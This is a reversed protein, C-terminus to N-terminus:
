KAVKEGHADAAGKVSQKFSTRTALYSILDRLNAPPLSLAMPPMASMPPTIAKVQSRAHSSENGDLAILTIKEPTDLTIRGAIVSGDQLTVSSLGYGAAIEASPNVLSEVLKERSLRKGVDGLPPGQIGGENGMKHCQLCAGQNRFVVEGLKADGGTMSLKPVADMASAAYAAAAQKAKDDTSGQLSLFFDLWLERRLNNSERNTWKELAEASSLSAIIEVGARAALIPATDIAKRAAEAIGETKLAHGHRLAAAAMIASKDQILKLILGRAADPASKVLSDLAAVRVEAQLQTQGVLSALTVADLVTGTADTLKLALSALTPPPNSALFAKLADGIQDGLNKMSRATGPIARHGGLVPDATIRKEWLRLAHLTAERVSPDLEEEAALRMLRVAHKASGIRYNAAVVRRQVTPPLELINAYEALAEGAAGDVAATDYIARVAERRLQADSDTLFRALEASGQRRLCLLSMLRVERNADEAHAVADAETGLRHLATLLSHRMVPDVVTNAAAQQYLAAIVEADGPKAVRSLAICALSRVQAEADSLVELL